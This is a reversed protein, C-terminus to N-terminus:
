IEVIALDRTAELIRGQFDEEKLEFGEVDVSEGGYRDVFLDSIKRPDEDIEKKIENYEEDTKALHIANVKCAEVCKGCNICKSNDIIIKKNEEDWFLAKTPCIEIGSCEKANDCIKWNILISM